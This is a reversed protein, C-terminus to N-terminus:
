VYWMSTGAGLCNQSVTDKETLHCDKPETKQGASPGQGRGGQQGNGVAGLLRPRVGGLGCREEAKIAFDSRRGHLLVKM